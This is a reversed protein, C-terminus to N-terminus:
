KAGVFQAVSFSLAKEGVRKIKEGSALTQNEESHFWFREGQEITHRAEEQQRINLPSDVEWRTTIRVVTELNHYRAENVRIADIIEILRDEDAPTPKGKEEAPSIAALGVVLLCTLSIIRKM